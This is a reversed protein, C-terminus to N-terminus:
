CSLNNTMILFPIYIRSCSQMFSALILPRRGGRARKETIGSDKEVGGKEMRVEQNLKKIEKEDNREVEGVSDSLFFDGRKKLKRTVEPYM